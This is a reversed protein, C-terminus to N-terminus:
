KFWREMLGWIIPTIILDSGYRQKNSLISLANSLEDLSACQEFNDNILQLKERILAKNKRMLYPLELQKQIKDFNDRDKRLFYLILLNHMAYFTHYKDGIEIISYAGNEISDDIFGNILSSSIYNNLIICCDSSMNKPNKSILKEFSMYTKKTTYKGCLYGAIIKNNILANQYDSICCKSKALIQYAKKYQSKGMLSVSYNLRTGEHLYINDKSIDFAIQTFSIAKDSDLVYLLNGLRYFKIQNNIDTIKTHNLWSTLKNVTKQVKYNEISTSFVIADLVYSAYKEQPSSFLHIQSFLTIYYNFIEILRKQDTEIEYIVDVIYNLACLKAEPTILSNSTLLQYAKTTEALLQEATYAKINGRIDDLFLISKGLIDKKLFEKIISNFKIHESERHYYACIFYSLRECDEIPVFQSTIALDVYRTPYESELYKLVLICDDKNLNIPAISQFYEKFFYEAFIFTSMQSEKLIKADMSIPLYEKYKLSIKNDLNDLDIIKFEDFLLSCINLFYELQKRDPNKNGAEILMYIISKITDFKNQQKQNLIDQIKDIYEIGIKDIIELLFPNDLNENTYNEFDQQTFSLEFERSGTIKCDSNCSKDSFILLAVSTMYKHLILWGIFEIYQINEPTLDSLERVIILQKLRKYPKPKKHIHFTKQLYRFETQKLNYNTTELAINAFLHILSIIPELELIFQIIHKLVNLFPNSGRTEKQVESEVLKEFPILQYKMGIEFQEQFIVKYFAHSYNIRIFRMDENSLSEFIKNLKDMTPLKTTTNM